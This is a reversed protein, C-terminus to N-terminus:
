LGLDKIIAEYNPVVKYPIARRELLERVQNDKEIARAKDQTRGEQIFKREGRDVYYNYNEFRNFIDIVFKEFDVDIEPHPKYKKLGDRMYIASLLLPSDTVIYDVQGLLRYMRAHQEGFILLQDDLSEWNKNWVLDKAFESAMECNIRNKKLHHMLGFANTSKGASPGALLNIVKTSAKEMSLTNGTNNSVLLIAMCNQIKGDTGVAVM